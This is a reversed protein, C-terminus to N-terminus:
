NSLSILYALLDRFEEQTLADAFTSPMLSLSLTTKEKVSELPILSEKGTPDALRLQTGETQRILGAFTEGQHTTVTSLRFAVDVNRNPALVDEALRALGRNGIGDLNPGLATGVGAVQHCIACHTSFLAKGADPRGAQERYSALRQAITTDLSTNEDPLAKVLGVM